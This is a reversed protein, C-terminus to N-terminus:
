PQTVAVHAPQVALTVEFVGDGDADGEAQYSCYVHYTGDEGLRWSTQMCKTLHFNGVYECNDVVRCDYPGPADYCIWPVGVPPEQGANAYSYRSRGTERGTADLTAQYGQELECEIRMSPMLPNGSGPMQGPGTDPSPRSDSVDDGPADPPTVPPTVDSDGVRECALLLSLPLLLATWPKNTM